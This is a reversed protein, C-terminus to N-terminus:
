VGHGAPGAVLVAVARHLDGAAQRLEALEGTLATGALRVGTTAASKAREQAINEAVRLALTAAVLAARLDEM